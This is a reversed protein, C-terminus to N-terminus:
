FFVWLEIHNSCTQLRIRGRELTDKLLKRDIKEYLGLLLELKLLHTVVLLFRRWQVKLDEQAYHILILIAVPFVFMLERIDAPFIGPHEFTWTFSIFAMEAILLASIFGGYYKINEWM